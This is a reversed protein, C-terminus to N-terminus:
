GRFREPTLDDGEVVSEPRYIVVRMRHEDAYQEIQERVTKEFMTITPRSWQRTETIFYQIAYINTWSGDFDSM